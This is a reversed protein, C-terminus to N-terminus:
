RRRWQIPLCRFRNRRRSLRTSSSITMSSAFSVNPSVAFRAQRRDLSREEVTVVSIQAPESIGDCLPECESPRASSALCCNFNQAFGAPGHDSCALKPSPPRKRPCYGFFQISYHGALAKEAFFLSNRPKGSVPCSPSVASRLGPSIMNGEAEVGISLPGISSLYGVGGGVM